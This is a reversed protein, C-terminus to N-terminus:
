DAIRIYAGERVVLGEQVLENLVTQSRNDELNAIVVQEETAGETLIRLIAGRLQRNSGEFTSQRTYVASRRNPNGFQKKIYTGYDMLAWYWERPNEQDVTQAVYELIAADSVQPTDDFFHHLYVSRINTEIFALPQNYAYVIIASATNHGIGPLAVLETVTRPMVGKYEQVVQKAAERLFKARRNYGLGQWLTLVDHLSAASLAEITPFAQLFQQYKEIVRPVQTQQLMIESVMIQYPTTDPQRWALDRKHSHYYEWVIEQFATLQQQDLM